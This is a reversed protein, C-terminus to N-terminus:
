RPRKARRVAWARSAFFAAGTLVGGGLVGVVSSVVVQEQPNLKFKPELGGGSATKDLYVWWDAQWWFTVGCATSAVAFCLLWHRTRM